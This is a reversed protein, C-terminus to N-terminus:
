GPPLHLTPPSGHILSAEGNGPSQGLAELAHMMSQILPRIAIRCELNEYEGFKEIAKEFLYKASSSRARKLFSYAAAMQVFAQVFTKADGEQERWVDEWAEHAEWHFGSNFLKTGELFRDSVLVEGIEVILDPNSPKHFQIKPILNYNFGQLGAVGLRQAEKKGQQIFVLLPSVLVGLYEPQFVALKDYAKGFNNILGRYSAKAVLQHYAAALQILGQFFLREDEGHRLWIQEWAEHSHWFKGCNFLKVGHAFEAWDEATMGVEKLPDRNIEEPRKKQPRPNKM